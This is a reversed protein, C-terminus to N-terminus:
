FCFSNSNILFFNKTEVKKLNKRKSETHVDEFDSDTNFSNVEEVQKRTATVYTTGAPGTLLNSTLINNANNPRYAITYIPPNPNSALVSSQGPGYKLM